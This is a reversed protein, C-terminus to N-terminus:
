RMQAAQLGSSRPDDGVVALRFLEPDYHLDAVWGIGILLTAQGLRIRGM